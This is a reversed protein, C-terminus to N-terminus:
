APIGHEIMLREVEVVPLTATWAEIRQDLEVQHRGRAMHDVYRPDIALGPEGMAECLRGFVSNQNAGILYDGDLCRYVNSPAIGPLISGGTKDRHHLAALAGMCGYTAALSDGISVGM